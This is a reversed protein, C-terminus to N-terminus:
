ARASIIVQCPYTRDEVWNYELYAGPDAIQHVIETGSCQTELRECQARARTDDITYFNRPRIAHTRCQNRFRIVPFVIDTHMTRLHEINEPSSM